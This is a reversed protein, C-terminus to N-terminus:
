TMFNYNAQLVLAAGPIRPIWSHTHSSKSGTLWELFAIAKVFTSLSGPESEDVLRWM